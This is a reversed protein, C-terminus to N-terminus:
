QVCLQKYKITSPAVGFDKPLDINGLENIGVRILAMHHITHELNYIVERYYNTSVDMEENTSTTFSGELQLHKNEKNIANIIGALLEIAIKNNTEIALDRKRKEYNVKGTTYGNLLCQYLEIIHRTHGGVTSGNLLTSKTTYEEETLLSLLQSLQNLVPEILHKLQM